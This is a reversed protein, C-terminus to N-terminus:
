NDNVIKRKIKDVVFICDKSKLQGAHM